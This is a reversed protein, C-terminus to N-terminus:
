ARVVKYGLQQLDGAGDGNPSLVPLWPPPAQVGTYSLLLATSVGREGTAPRSLLNGDFALTTGSGSALAIATVAGLRQMTQALEYNTAGVSYGPRGGDVSVLLISGDARQGVAARPMRTALEVPDFSEGANFVARGGRVLVPGGGMGEAVQAFSDRLLLRVTVDTGPRAEARLKS